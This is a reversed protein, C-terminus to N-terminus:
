FFSLIDKTQVKPKKAPKQNRKNNLTRKGTTINDQARFEREIQRQLDLATHFDLHEALKSESIVKNCVHCNIKNTVVPELMVKKDEESLSNWTDKNPTKVVSNSESNSIQKGENEGKSNEKETDKGADSSKFRDFYSVGVKSNSPTNESSCSSEGLENNIAAKQPISTSSSPSETGKTKLLNFINSKEKPAPIFKGAGLSMMYITDNFSDGVTKLKKNICKIALKKLTDFKTDPIGPIQISCSGTGRLRLHVHFQTPIRKNDSGEFALREELEETLDNVWKDVVGVKCIGQPFNKACNTQKVLNRPKVEDEDYGRAINYIWMGTKDGFRSILDAQSFKILESAYEIDLENKVQVGLKGGFNRIKSLSVKQYLLQINDPAIITLSNPKHTGAALKAVIKNSGIGASCTFGTEKFVEKRIDNVYAAGLTLRYNVSQHNALTLSSQWEDIQEASSGEYGAIYTNKLKSKNVPLGIMKDVNITIDLYAEDISAREFINAFKSFITMVESSANRFISLDAKKRNHPMVLLKIDKSVELCEKRRMGRKIGLARAEYSM